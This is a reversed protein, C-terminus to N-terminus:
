PEVDGWRVRPPMAAHMAFDVELKYLNKVQVGIQKIQGNAVHKLYAKRKSFLVDYGCDELIAVSVLNKKLGPVYIVDKVHLHSESERKFTITGIGKTSYRGDDGLEIHLQIDKELNNFFEKSGIMHYSAGYDLYWESGRLTNAM